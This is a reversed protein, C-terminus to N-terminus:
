GTRRQERRAKLEDQLVVLPDAERKAGALAADMTSRLEKVLGAYGMVATAEDIRQALAVAAAGLYTDSRGARELEAKVLSVTSSASAPLPAVPAVHGRQARKGCVGGPCYKAVARKAEFTKGCVVCTKTM